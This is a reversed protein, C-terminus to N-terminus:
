ARTRRLLMRVIADQGIAAAAMLLTSSGQEACRADVGGGEDLWATVARSEGKGAAVLLRTPLGEAATAPNTDMKRM